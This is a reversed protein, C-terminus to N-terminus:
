SHKLFFGWFIMQTLPKSCVIWYRPFLNITKETAVRRLLYISSILLFLDPIWVGIVPSLAGTECVSRVGALCLYYILFVMLGVGIGASRGRAKLQAGLPMGIIGMLFVALPISCKELLEIMMENHRVEGRPVIRLQRILEAASMEKPKKRRSSLASFIDKLGISLDYTKFQITRGSQINKEVVHITGNQFRLTIIREQPHFFIRGKEAIITNTVAKDRRDVVFVKEMQKKRKSFSNVYFVIDDFPENFIREKIGLDAKSQAIQYVLNKFSSNGWPVGIFSIVTAILLGLFSLLFVPPLMQYLSIGCSKLAIIESDVSFRLFALLVAILSAAPLAFAVIDPLLYAVMRAVQTVPVGRAVILDTISLMKTSVVIFVSVFLSALFSPWIENLIYKYLTLKM